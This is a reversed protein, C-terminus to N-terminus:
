DKVLQRPWLSYRSRVAYKNIIYYILILLCNYTYLVALQACLYFVICVKDEYKDKIDISRLVCRFSPQPHVWYIVGCELLQMIRAPVAHVTYTSLRVTRDPSSDVM